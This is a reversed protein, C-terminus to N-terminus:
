TFLLVDKRHLRFLSSQQETLSNHVDMESRVASTKEFFVVTEEIIREDDRVGPFGLYGKLPTAAYKVVGVGYDNKDKNYKFFGGVDEFTPNEKMEVLLFGNIPQIPDLKAIIRDYDIFDQKTEKEFHATYSFLVRDGVSLEMPTDYQLSMANLERLERLEQSSYPKDYVLVQHGYFLFGEPIAVVTGKVSFNYQKDETNAVILGDIGEINDDFDVLVKNTMRLM